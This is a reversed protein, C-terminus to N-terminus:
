MISQIRSWVDVHAAEDIRIFDNYEAAAVAIQLALKFINIAM